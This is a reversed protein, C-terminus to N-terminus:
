TFRSILIFLINPNESEIFFALKKMVFFPYEDDFKLLGLTSWFPIKSSWREVQMIKKEWDHKDIADFCLSIHIMDFPAHLLITTLEM